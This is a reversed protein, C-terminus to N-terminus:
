KIKKYELQVETGKTRIFGVVEKDDNYLLTGFVRGPGTFFTKSDPYLITERLVTTEDKDKTSYFLQNNRENIVFKNETDERVYTGLYHEYDKVNKVISTDKQIGLYNSLESYIAIAENRFKLTYGFHDGLFMNQYTVVDNLYYPDNLLYLVMDDTTERLIMYNYLWPNLKRKDVRELFNALTIKDANDVENKHTRYLEKLKLILSNQDQNLHNQNDVLNIYDDNALNVEQTGFILNSYRRNNKYDDFTVKKTLVNYILTDKKRYFEILSDSKNINFALEKQVQKLLVLNYDSAKREENWNNISLAILIGIVVLVIEGIAYKLYKGTKNGMILNQRIHRFFKIM